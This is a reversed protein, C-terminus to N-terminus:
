RLMPFALRTHLSQSANGGQLWLARVISHFLIIEFDTDDVNRLDVFM